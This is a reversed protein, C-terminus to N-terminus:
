KAQISSKLISKSITICIIIIPDLDVSYGNSPLGINNSILGIKIEEISIEEKMRWFYFPFKTANIKNLNKFFGIGM